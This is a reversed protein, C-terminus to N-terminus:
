DLRSVIDRWSDVEGERSYPYLNIIANDNGNDNEMQALIRTHLELATRTKGGRLVWLSSNNLRISEITKGTTPLSEYLAALRNEVSAYDYDTM